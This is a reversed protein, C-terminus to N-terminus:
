HRRREAGFVAIMSETVHNQEHYEGLTRTLREIFPQKAKVARQEREAQKQQQDLRLARDELERRRRAMM